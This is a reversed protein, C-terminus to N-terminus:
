SSYSVWCYTSMTRHSASPRRSSSDSDLPAAALSDWPGLLAERELLGTM